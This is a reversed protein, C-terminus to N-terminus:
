VRRRYRTTDAKRPPSKTFVSFTLVQLFTAQSLAHTRHSSHYTSMTAYQACACPHASCVLSLTSGPVTQLLLYIESRGITVVSGERQMHGALYPTNNQCLCQSDAALVCMDTLAPSLIIWQAISHAVPSCNHCGAEARLIHSAHAKQTVFPGNKDDVHKRQNTSPASGQGNV